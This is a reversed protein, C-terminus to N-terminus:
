ATAAAPAKETQAPVETGAPTEDATGKAQVATYYVTSGQKSREVLARAVLRETTTRVLNGNLLREPHAAALAQTIEGATKPEKQASLHQHILGTLPARTEGSTDAKEATAKAPIAKAPTAKAPTAKAPTAKAPTAKKATAKKAAPKNASAKNPAKKAATTSTASAATKRGKAGASTPTKKDARPGPVVALTDGLAARMGILLEHDQELGTLREQLSAIEERIREQEATNLELDATVKDAYQSKLTTTEQPPM